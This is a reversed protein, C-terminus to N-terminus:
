GRNVGRSTGPHVGPTVFFSSSRQPCEEEQTCQPAHPVVARLRPRVREM